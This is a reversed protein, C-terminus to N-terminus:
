RINRYGPHTRQSCFNILEKTPLKRPQYTQGVELTYITINYQKNECSMLNIMNLNSYAEETVSVTPCLMNGIKKYNEATIGTMMMMDASPRGCSSM